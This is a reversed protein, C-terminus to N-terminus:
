RDRLLLDFTKRQAARLHKSVTPQTIDLQDAIEEASHDRPWEFYGKGLATEAIELQRDTLREELLATTEQPTRNPREHQRRAVLELGPYTDTLQDVFSRIDAGAPLEVVVTTEEPTANALRLVGGYDALLSGFWTDRSVEIVARSQETTVLEVATRESYVSEVLKELREESSIEGLLEYYVSVSGDDRPVTRAHRM